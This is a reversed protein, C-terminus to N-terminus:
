WEVYSMEGDLDVMVLKKEIEVGQPIGTVGEFKGNIYAGVVEYGNKLVM